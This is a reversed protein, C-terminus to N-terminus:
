DGLVSEIEADEAEKEAEDREEQENAEEERQREEEEVEETAQREEEDEEESDIVIAASKANANAKEKVKRAPTVKRGGRGKKGKKAADLTDVVAKYNAGLRKANHRLRAEVHGAGGKKQGESPGDLVGAWLGLVLKGAYECIIKEALLELALRGEEGDEDEDAEDESEPDEDVDEAGEDNDELTKKARRAYAKEAAGLIQLLLDQTQRPVEIALASCAERGDADADEEVEDADRAPKARLLSTFVCFVDLLIGALAIRLEDAGRRAPLVATLTEIFEDRAARVKDIDARPVPDNNALLTQLAQVKWMLYFSIARAANAVLADERKGTEADVDGTEPDTNARHVIALISLLAPDTAVKAKARASRLPPAELPDTCDSIQSLNSIRLLTSALVTLVNDAINGRVSLERDRCLAHLTNLTDEWLSSLKDTTVEELDDHSKAHLLVLSAEELVQPKGHTLFQKKIDDLLASYTSVDQRLAQFAEHNLVHELRLVALAADPLGGFKNLLRPILQALHRAATEQLDQAEQRDAAKRKHSSAAEVAQTLRLKVSANLVELLIIEEKDDLRCAQKFLTETDSTAGNQEPTRTHDYLLYGALVEWEKLEPIRDYLVEAALSLRSELGGPILLYSDTGPVRVVDSSGIEDLADYSQLIEVLCKLKMWELRPSDYNEDTDNLDTEDLADQGGLDDVKSEFMDKVNEAFFGVVAKRVRPESDFILRGVADIDDPELFGASRLFNLLEVAAARVSNESDRTAMEVIRPRFRETFSRLGSLKDQDQYLKILAELVAHRTKANHDSLVWGLYRLYQGDFFHDPFLIIWESLAQVCNERINPDVDRYRHVFVTDFWLTLYNGIKEVRAGAERVNNELETVRAKNVRGKKKKEGEAQRLTKASTEVIDRGVECLASMITLAAVTATHRFPRNGASAMTSIWAAMVEMFAEETFLIDASTATSILANLFGIFTGKFNHAAKGRGKAILPYESIGQAQYEEQIDGIKDAFHDPDEVDYSEIKHDCGACKLVFNFLDAMAASEHDSFAAMFSVAADEISKGKGFVDGYLGGVADADEIPQARTKRQKPKTTAPRIALSLKQGNPKPKKAAPKRAPPRSGRAARSQRARKKREKIEEPDPEGETSDSDSSSADPMDIDEGTQEVEGNDEEDTEGDSRKRKSGAPPPASSGLVDPKKVVRGSKRRSTGQTPSDMDSTRAPM